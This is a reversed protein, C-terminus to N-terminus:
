NEEKNINSPRKGLVEGKFIWVKVGIVGFTTHAECTGYDIDARITHLPLSGEHEFESRAIEAGDLRGSVMVKIGEAGAKMAKQIAQKMCRRWSVRKELQKAISDAVITADTDVKKVERINVTINNCSSIKAIEKKIAEVGAGKVGILMGPRGTLITVTLRTQSREILIKSISCQNYNKMLTERIKSDELINKAIDKKNGFWQSDWTKNVKLRLGIPSVKQGM